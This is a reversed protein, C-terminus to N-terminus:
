DARRVYWTVGALALVGLGLALATGAAIESPRPAHFRHWGFRDQAWANGHAALKPHRDRHLGVTLETGVRFLADVRKPDRLEVGLEALPLVVDRDDNTRLTAIGLADHRDVITGRYTTGPALPASKGDVVLTIQAGQPAPDRPFFRRAAIQHPPETHRSPLGHANADDPAFAIRGLADLRVDTGDPLRATGNPAGGVVVLRVGGDANHYAVELSGDPLKTPAGLYTGFNAHHVPDEAGPYGTWEWRM